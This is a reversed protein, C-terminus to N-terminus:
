GFLLETEGIDKRKFPPYSAVPQGHHTIVIPESSATVEAIRERFEKMGLRM